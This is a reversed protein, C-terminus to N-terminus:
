IMPDNIGVFYLSDHGFKCIEQVTNQIRIARNMPGVHPGDPASLAWTPGMNDGHVKSDPTNGLSSCVAPLLDTGHHRLSISVSAANSARQSPFRETSEGQGSATIRAKLAEKNNAHVSLRTALSKLWWSIVTIDFTVLAKSEMIMICLIVEQSSIGAGIKSLM